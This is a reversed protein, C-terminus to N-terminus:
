TPKIRALRLRAQDKEGADKSAALFAELTQIAQRPEGRKVYLESLREAIAFFSPALENDARLHAVAGDYLPLSSQRRLRTTFDRWHPCLRRM